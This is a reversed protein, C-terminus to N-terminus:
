TFDPLKVKFKLCNYCPTSFLSSARKKLQKQVSGNSVLISGSEECIFCPIALNKIFQYERSLVETYQELPAAGEKIVGTVGTIYVEHMRRSVTITSKVWFQKGGSQYPFVRSIQKAEEKTHTTEFRKLGM